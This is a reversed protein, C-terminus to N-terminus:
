AAVTAGHVPIELVVRLGDRQFDMTANGNLEYRLQRQLLETGFGHRTPESVTPGDRERWSLVLTADGEGKRELRWGVDVHGDPVSWAGYKTANTALEYLVLGLALAANATLMVKEGECTCRNGEVAFPALQINLLDAVSVEQWGGRSLLEYARALSQMRGMFAKEFQQVDTSQSMTQNALGIVVQLMNRVRHNLESVLTRLQEEAAVIDTVNVFTVLVGDIHQDITRYPLIRMLHFVKGSRLRVPREIPTQEDLVRRVDHALDVDVLQHAIDLIPRGRDTPILNFIATVAPTFSRIILHRDLFVTAIQTSEFLNRLDTNSRDLEDVKGALENNVTNLEENVSQLEEKSTELEENTSQLEENVSVLEENGSKLEELSTEYEEITAQLRDRTERLEHELSVVDGDVPRPQQHAAEERTLPRGLDTFVILYLPEQDSQIFPQVTVRVLQVREDLEVEIRERVITHRKNVAERLATRLELRLERRAMAQIQRSPSGMQPELYKGTRASYYIINGDGDVVIHAPTFQELVSAEIHRRLRQESHPSDSRAHPNLETGGGPVWSPVRVGTTVLTARRQFIRHKKDVAAFLDVHRSISEAPGLFLYGNPKLAYHFVPLVNDQLEANFYILLNRCSVMDMRSFPPDRVVSHASFICLDRVEKALVYSQADPRFFRELRQPSVNELMPAPYRGARAVALAPEDIDTAFVQVRPVVDLKNMRERLLLALSYAEEGTACGPVWVRITDSAGAHEFLRPIVESEIAAFAESDRFFATVGILLDRFLLRTEDADARLLELYDQLSGVQRVQMRRHVRRLFTKEKYSRFDHGIRKRLAAHIEQLAGDRHEAGHRETADGAIADLAHLSRVYQQLKTGIEEAPLVIDVLGSAVASSPMSDYAPGSAGHGQAITLGGEEKIAKIGLTGDTGAGSLVVGVSREHWQKALSSFFVDIPNRERQGEELRQLILESGQLTLVHEAPLVYIRGAQVHGGHMANVVPMKTHRGIIEALLSERHASLHTIVVLAAELQDPMSAFLQELAEVGGASAGVGVIFFRDDAESRAEATSV